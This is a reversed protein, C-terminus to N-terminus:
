GASVWEWVAGVRRNVDELLPLHEPLALGPDADILLRADERSQELLDQDTALSALRLGPLGSQRDGLVEGEGRLRLDHEALEFGDDTSMIAAMRAKGEATKPDAFLLVEGPAEGRGVRGRLQHLQALGFREANEVIMVTARPVDVGVEIVTTAVLVDTSGDRFSNMAAAKDAASMQGTLLGVKLDSFVQKQLRRAEATAARAETSDSEEVLACVVYAQYGSAVAARVAAYADARGGM